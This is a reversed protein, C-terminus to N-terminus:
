GILYLREALARVGASAMRPGVPEDRSALERVPGLWDFLSELDARSLSWPPGPLRSQDYEFAVALIRGGPRLVRQFSDVLRRRQSSPEVAVLSGRDYIADVLGGAQEVDLAFADGELITVGDAEHARFPTRTSVRPNTHSETFFAEIAITSLETGLVEHGHARLWRMDLSKGCLPVYVRHLGSLVDGHAALLENPVDRHFGIEGRSWRELWFDREM